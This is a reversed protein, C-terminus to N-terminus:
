GLRAVLRILDSQRESGTKALLSRVQTRVTAISRGKLQAVQEVAMGNVLGTLVELEAGTLGYLQGLLQLTDRM